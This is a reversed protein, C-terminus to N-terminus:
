VALTALVPVFVASSEHLTLDGKSKRGEREEGGGVREVSCLVRRRVRVFAWSGARAAVRIPHIMSPLILFRSHTFHRVDPM